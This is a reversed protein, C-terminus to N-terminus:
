SKMFDAIAAIAVISAQGSKLIQKQEQIKKQLSRKLYIVFWLFIFLLKISM